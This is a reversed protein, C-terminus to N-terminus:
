EDGYANDPPADAGGDAKDLLVLKGRQKINIETMSKEVGNDDWKRHVIQGEIYVKSGKKVYQKIINVLGEQFCVIRHWESKQKREGSDKDKWSESTAISFQAMPKGNVNKIEPDKGVHGILIAKNLM